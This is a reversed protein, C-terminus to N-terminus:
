SQAEQDMVYLEAADLRSPHPSTPTRGAAHRAEARKSPRTCQEGPKARCHEVPCPVALVSRREIESQWGLERSVQRLVAAITNPDAPPDSRQEIARRQEPIPQPANRKARVAETIHGPMLFATTRAYHDRVAEVGEDFSWRGRRAADVWSQVAKPNPKRNDYSAAYDLLDAAEKHNITM